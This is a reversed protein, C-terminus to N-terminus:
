NGKKKLHLHEEYQQQLSKRNALKKVGKNSKVIKDLESKLERAEEVRQMIEEENEKISKVNDRVSSIEEYMSNIHQESKRQNTSFVRIKEITKDYKSNALLIKNEIEEDYNNTKEEINRIRQKIDKQLDKLSILDKNASEELAKSKTQIENLIKAMSRERKSLSEETIAQRKELKEIREVIKSDYKLVKLYDKIRKFM